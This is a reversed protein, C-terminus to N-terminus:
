SAGDVRGASPRACDNAPHGTQRGAPPIPRSLRVPPYIPVPVGGALLIGFFSFFYERGTPLMIAVTGAPELGREILGAAVAQAGAALEAYTIEIEQGDDAYLYIQLQAPHRAVHWDLVAPLTLASAPVEHM